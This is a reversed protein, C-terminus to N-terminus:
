CITILRILFQLNRKSDAFGIFCYNKELVLENRLIGKFEELWRQVFPHDYLRITYTLEKTGSLTIKIQDQLYQEM